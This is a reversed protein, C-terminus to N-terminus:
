IPPNFPIWNASPTRTGSRCFERVAQAAVNPAVFHSVPLTRRGSPDWIVVTGVRSEDAVLVYPCTPDPSDFFVFFGHEKHFHLVLQSWWGAENEYHLSGERYGQHWYEEGRSTVLVAVMEPNPSLIFDGHPPGFTLNSMAPIVSNCVRRALCAFGKATRVTQQILHKTM